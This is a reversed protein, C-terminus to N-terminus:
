TRLNLGPPGGGQAEPIFSWIGGHRKRCAYYLTECDVSKIGANDPGPDDIEVATHGNLRQLRRVIVCHGQDRQMRPGFLANYEFCVVPFQGSETLEILRKEFDWDQFNAISEFQCALRSHAGLLVNIESVVPNIGWASADADFRINQVGSDALESPDYGVPVVVGLHNAIVVQDIEAGVGDRAAKQLCAVFCLHRAAIM